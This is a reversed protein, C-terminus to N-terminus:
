SRTRCRMPNTPAFASNAARQRHREQLRLGACLHQRRLHRKGCLGASRLDHVAGRCLAHDRPRGDVAHCLSLRRRRPRVLRQSQVRGASRDIGAITVTRDTTVDQWGYALARPFIPRDSPTSSSPAPRSCTPADPAAMPSASAPAAAPSRLVPRRNGALVSLRRRGRHRVGPQDRHQLRTRMATPPRRAAMAPLGSAGASSSCANGAAGQNSRPRPMTREQAQRCLGRRRRRCIAHMGPTTAMNGRGDMFPDTMMGMFMSMANFTAQQSGTATEGAAEDARSATLAGYIM